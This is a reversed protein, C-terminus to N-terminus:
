FLAGFSISFSSRISNLTQSGTWYRWNNQIHIASFRRWWMLCVSNFIAIIQTDPVSFTSLSFHWMLWSWCVSYCTRYFCTYYKRFSCIRIRLRNSCIRGSSWILCTCASPCNWFSRTNSTLIFTSMSVMWKKWKLSTLQQSTFIAQTIPQYFSSICAAHTFSSESQM